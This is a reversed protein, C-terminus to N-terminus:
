DVYGLSCFLVGTGNRIVARDGSRTLGNFSVDEEV